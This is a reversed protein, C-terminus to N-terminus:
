DKDETEFLTQLESVVGGADFGTHLVCVSGMDCASEALELDLGGSRGDREFEHFGGENGGEEEDGQKEATARLLEHAHLGILAFVQGIGEHICATVGEQQRHSLV